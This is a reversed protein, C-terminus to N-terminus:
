RFRRILQMMSETPANVHHLFNDIARRLTEESEFELIVLIEENDTNDYHKTKNRVRNIYASIEKEPKLKGDIKYIEGLTAISKERATRESASAPLDRGSKRKRQIMGSLLEESAAALHIVAFGDGGNFHLNLATELLRAAIDGKAYSKLQAM